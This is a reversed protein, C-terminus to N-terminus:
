ILSFDISNLFLYYLFLYLISNEDDVTLCAIEGGVNVFGVSQLNNDVIEIDRSEESIFLSGSPNHVVV